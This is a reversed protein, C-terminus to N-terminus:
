IEVGMQNLLYEAKRKKSKNSTHRSFYSLYAKAANYRKHHYLTVGIGYYNMEYYPNAIIGMLFYKYDNTLYGLFYYARAHRRKDKQQALYSIFFERSEEKKGLKYCVVGSFFLSHVYKFDGSCKEIIEYAKKNDNKIYYYVLQQEESLFDNLSSASKRLIESRMIKNLFEGTIQSYPMNYFTRIPLLCDSCEVVLNFDPMAERPIDILKEQFDENSQSTVDQVIKEAAAADIIKENLGFCVRNQSCVIDEIKVDIKEYVEMTKEVYEKPFGLALMEEESKLWYEQSDLKFDTVKGFRTKIIMDHVKWDAKSLYHVDNTLVLPIGLERAIKIQGENAKEEDALGHYSLELYYDDDFIDLFDKAVREAAEFGHNIYEQQVRGFLCASLLILGENYKELLAWDVLGIRNQYCNKEWSLNVIKVLNQLGQNSKALLVIHYRHNINNEINYQADDVFYCECGLIPKLELQRAKYYFEYIKALSGHDTIAIGPQGLQKVRRLADDIHLSSDSYSGTFHSHLHVFM